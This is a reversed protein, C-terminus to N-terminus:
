GSTQVQPANALRRDVLRGAADLSPRHGSVAAIFPERELAYLCVVGVATCTATRPVDQLLAIEGFGDGRRLRGLYAGGQWADVEGDAIVYFRDGADGEAILVHAPRRVLSRALSELEPAPLAELFRLSRLLAIEVVPVTASALLARGCLVLAVPLVAGTGIVAAEIGITSVLLPM